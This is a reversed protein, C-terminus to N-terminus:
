SQKALREKKCWTAHNKLSRFPVNYKEPFGSHLGPIDGLIIVGRTRQYTVRAINRWANTADSGHVGLSNGHTRSSTSRLVLQNAALVGAHLQRRAQSGM